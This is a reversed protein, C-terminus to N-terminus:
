SLQGFQFSCQAEPKAPESTPAPGQRERALRRFLARDPCTAFHPVFTKPDVPFLKGKPSRYWYIQTACHPGTCFNKKEYKFGAYVLDGHSHHPWPHRRM